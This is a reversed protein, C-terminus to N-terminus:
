MLDIAGDAMAKKAKSIMAKALKLQKPQLTEGEIQRLIKICLRPREEVTLAHRALKLTIPIRLAAFNELYSEMVERAIKAKSPQPTLGNIIAVYQDEPMVLSNNNRHLIKFRNWAVEFHGKAIYDAVRELGSRQQEMAAVRARKREEKIKHEEATTIVRQGKKGAQISMLDYGECDVWRNRVMFYGILAGPMVGIMHLLASSLEFFSFWVTLFEMAIMFFCFGMVSVQFTGYYPFFFLMVFYFLTMENEPAWILIIALMGFIVGSAGLSSGSSFWFMTIHEFANASVGIAFYILIFKWWGVKGEIVWGCIALLLMNGVLHGIGGHMCCSSFWTIPNFVQHQLVFYDAVEPFMFQLALVICNLLIMGLTALPLHYCPADIATPIVIFM